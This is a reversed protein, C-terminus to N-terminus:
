NNRPEVEIQLGYKMCKLFAVREVTLDRGVNEQEDAMRYVLDDHTFAQWKVLLRELPRGNSKAPAAENWADVADDVCPTRPKNKALM